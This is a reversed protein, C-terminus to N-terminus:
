KAEGWRSVIKVDALMPISLARIEEMALRIQEATEEALYDPTVTVLEDHVTL